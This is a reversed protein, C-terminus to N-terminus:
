ISYPSDRGPELPPPAFSDTGAGSAITTHHSNTGQKLQFFVDIFKYVDSSARNNKYPFSLEQSGGQFVISGEEEWFLYKAMFLVGVFMLAFGLALAIGVGDLVYGLVGYAVIGVLIFFLGQILDKFGRTEARVTVGKLEELPALFTERHGDAVVFSMLRRNTLVLLPGKPPTHSVLGSDSVFRERLVEGELLTFERVASQSRSVQPGTDFM